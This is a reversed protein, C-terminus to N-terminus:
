HGTRIGPPGPETRSIRIPNWRGEL